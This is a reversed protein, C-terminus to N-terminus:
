GNRAMVVNFVCEFEIHMRSDMKRVVENRLVDNIQTEYDIKQMLVDRQMLEYAQTTKKCTM